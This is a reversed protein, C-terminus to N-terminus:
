GRGGERTSRHSRLRQPRLIPGDNELVNGYASEFADLATTQQLESLPEWTPDVYGVWKVLVERTQQRGRRRWRAALIAEIGYEEDGQETVIPPPQTNDQIQSPLPDTGARRLLSTHFRNHIGRPTDLEYSMSNIVRTVTYKGHIWDLKKCPRLTKVNKLNLWVKDGVKFSDAPARDRNSYYEQQQQASVMSTEAWEQADKLKAVLDQAKEKPNKPTEQPAEVTGIHEINYGHTLFFPSLGTAQNPRNDLCIQAIPLLEVWDNQSFTCFKRLYAEVEQNRRETSGDTEPHYATSLRREIKLLHCVEKWFANVFQTDRDSVLSRPLWHLRVYNQMFLKAFGEAGFQEKPVPFLITGKGLRDTIVCLRTCRQSEPLEVIFDVSIDQWIRSPVPLPKLLGKKKDRWVSTRGCVDCNRIFQRIDQAFGPWYFQRSLIAITAERGPHGSLVSDHIEQIVGTLLPEYSPLWIRDRYYLQNNEVKCDGISTPVKLKSPFQRDQKLVSQFIRRYDLDGELATEWRDRLDGSLFPNQIFPIPEKDVEQANEQAAEERAPTKDELVNIWLKPPLLTRTREVIRPDQIDKPLDQDRRTLADPVVSESGPRYGLKFNFKALIQAWRMQRENLERKVMFKELNKHDTLIIFPKSLSLLESTWHVLAKVIAMLEKDHIDYNCEAPLHKTSFFACPKWNGLEDKQSLVAGSAWGSADPEVRTPKDEDLASLVPEKCFEAKLKQFSEEQEKGWLFPTNKKTLRVLPERITSNDKVFDRYFNTFGLFGRVGRLTTPREWEKIAKIKEPDMHLGTETDIVFGLYKVRKTNFECKRIDLYLGANLCSQLIKETKEEHDKLNKSSYIVIDDLYASCFEDLYRRLIYNIYRQFSAPAGTLGFPTVLWEFLGYRTRFATKFEDGTAIRIKHFAANVDLKSLYKARALTLLTEKVLPLPYRDKRTIANLARYDVCFRLGGGPKKVFLVPSAAVSKSERIFGKDLLETLTRRLVLLQERGMGYLPGWPLPKGEEIPIEHDIGPRHPPLREARKPDFVAAYKHFRKPLLELIQETTLPVKPKLAIDIDRLTVAFVRSADKIKELTSTVLRHFRVPAVQQIDLKDEFKADRISIGNAFTLTGKSENIVAKTDKLFPRGLLLDEFQGPVIYAFANCILGGLDLNLKAIKTVQTQGEEKLVGGITRPSIPLVELDM